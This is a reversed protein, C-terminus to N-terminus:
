FLKGGLNVSIFHFIFPREEGSNKLSIVIRNANSKGTVFKLKYFWNVTLNKWSLSYERVSEAYLSYM